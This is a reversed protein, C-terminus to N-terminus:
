PWGFASLQFRIPNPNTPKRSVANPPHKPRVKFSQISPAQRTTAPIPYAIPHTGVSKVSSCDVEEFICKTDIQKESAPQHPPSARMICSGAAKGPKCVVALYATALESRGMTNAPASTIVSGIVCRIKIAIMKPHTDIVDTCIALTLTVSRVFVVGLCSELGCRSSAGQHILRAQM